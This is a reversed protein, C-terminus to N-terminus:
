NYKMIAVRRNVLDRVTDLLALQGPNDSSLNRLEEFRFPLKEINQLYATLFEDDGTVYYGRVRTETEIILNSLEGIKDEIKYSRSVQEYEARVKWVSQFILFYSIMILVFAVIYGLRIKGRLSM